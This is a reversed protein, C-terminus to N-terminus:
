DMKTLAEMSPTTRSPMIEAQRVAIIIRTKRPLQRLVIITAIEMGKDMTTEMMTRLISPWVMLMMDSLPNASATPISTSSAVTSISFTWRLMPMPFGMIWDIKSPAEWIAVGAKTDVSDIQITNTGMNKRVPTVLNRKAGRAIATIKAMSAEYKRDRVRTGVITRYM